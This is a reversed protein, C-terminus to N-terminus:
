MKVSRLKLVEAIGTMDDADVLISVMDSEEGDFDSSCIDAKSSGVVTASKTSALLNEERRKEESQKDGSIRGASNLNPQKNGSIRGASNLNTRRFESNSASKQPSDFMGDEYADAEREAEILDDATKLLDISEGFYFEFSKRLSIFLM